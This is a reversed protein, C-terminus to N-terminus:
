EEENPKSLNVVKSINIGLASLVDFAIEAKLTISKKFIRNYNYAIRGTIHNEDNLKKIFSYYIYDHDMYELIDDLSELNDMVWEAIMHINAMIISLDSKTETNKNASTSVDKRNKLAGFIKYIDNYYKKIYNILIKTVIAKYDIVFFSYLAVTIPVLNNSNTSMYDESLEFEFKTKMIDIFMLCIESFRDEIARKIDPDDYEELMNKYKAYLISFYNIPIDNDFEAEPSLINNTLIDSIQNLNFNDLIDSIELYFEEM